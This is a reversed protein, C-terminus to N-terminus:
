PAVTGSHRRAPDPGPRGAPDPRCRPRGPGPWGGAAPSRPPGDSARPGRGAGAGRRRAPASLRGDGACGAGCAGAPRGARARRGPGRRGDPDVLAALADLLDADGALVGAQRALVPVVDRGAMRRACPCCSTASGTASSAPITTPRTSAGPRLGLHRACPWRRPGGCTRAPPPPARGAHRGARAVGPGGCCTPWCRRPRTTPPTAPPPTPVSSRRAPGPRARAELNPGDAVEVRESRFRPASAGPPRPWWTPRPRGVRAAARPRRARRDGPLRGGRGPGAPGPLRGRGLGRLGAASGPPPFTCRDLLAASRTPGSTVRGPDAPSPPHPASM